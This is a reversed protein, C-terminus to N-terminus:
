RKAPLSRAYSVGRGSVIRGSKATRVPRAQWGAKDAAAELVAIARPDTLNRLRFAVPDIAAEAALEDIFCEHAFSNPLSAVGRLLSGHIM